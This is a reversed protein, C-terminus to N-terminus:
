VAPWESVLQHNIYLQWPRPVHEPQPPEPVHPAHLAGDLESLIVRETLQMLVSFDGNELHSFLIANQQKDGSAEQEAQRALLCLQMCMHSIKSSGGTRKAYVGHEAAGTNFDGNELHSFPIANPQKDASAQQDPQNDRRWLLLPLMLADEDDVYQSLTVRLPYQYEFSLSSALTSVVRGPELTLTLRQPDTQLLPVQALLAARLLTPKLM